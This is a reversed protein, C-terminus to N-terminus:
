HAIDNVIICTNKFAEIILDLLQAYQISFFFFFGCFVVLFLISM